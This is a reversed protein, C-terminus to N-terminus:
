KMGKEIWERFEDYNPKAEPLTEELRTKKGRQYYAEKTGTEGAERRKRWERAYIAGENMKYERAQKGTPIPDQPIPESNGAQEAEWDIGNGFDYFYAKTESEIGYEYRTYTKGDSTPLEKAGRLWITEGHWALSKPANMM